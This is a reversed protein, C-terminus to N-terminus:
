QCPASTRFSDTHAGRRTPYTVRQSIEASFASGTTSWESRVGFIQESGGTLASCPLSQSSELRNRGVSTARAGRSSEALRRIMLASTGALALAGVSLVVIAVVIEILTLGHRSKM